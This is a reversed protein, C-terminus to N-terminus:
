AAASPADVMGAAVFRCGITGVGDVTVTAAQGARVVHVGTVAGTSVLTGAPLALGRSCCIELLARLSEVPGGPIATANAKGVVVGDVSTEFDFAGALAADVQLAPGLVLGNNNGFDSITVLPGLDNISGLPSSAVEIGLQASAVVAAAQEQTWKAQDPAIDRGLVLVVEGEVAGFGGVFVPMDLVSDAAHVSKRFIPGALRDTGLSAVWPPNIRGIKWGAIVDPWRRIAQEQVSYAEALTAPVTGPYDALPQATRRARVFACARADPSAAVVAPNTM